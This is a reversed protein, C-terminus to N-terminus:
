VSLPNSLTLEYAVPSMKPSLKLVFNPISHCSIGATLADIYESLIIIAIIILIVKIFKCVLLLLGM